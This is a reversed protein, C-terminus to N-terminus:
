KGGGDGPGGGYSGSTDTGDAGLSHSSGVGHGPRGGCAFLVNGALALAAVAMLFRNLGRADAQPSIGLADATAACNTM